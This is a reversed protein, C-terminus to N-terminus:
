GGIPGIPKTGRVFPGRYEYIVRIEDLWHSTEEVVKEGRYVTVKEAAPSVWIGGWITGFWMVIVLCIAAVACLGSRAAKRARSVAQHVCCVTLIGVALGAFWLFLALILKVWLRWELEFQQLLWQGGFLIIALAFVGIGIVMLWKRTGDRLRTLAYLWFGILIVLAAPPVVTFFTTLANFAGDSM